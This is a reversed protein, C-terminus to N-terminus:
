QRMERSLGAAITEQLAFQEFKEAVARGFEEVTHACHRFVRLQLSRRQAIKGMLQPARGKRKASKADGCRGFVDFACKCSARNRLVYAGAASGKSGKSGEGGREGQGQGLNLGM